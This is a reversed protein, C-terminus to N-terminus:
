QLHHHRQRLRCGLVSSPQNVRQSGVGPPRQGHRRKGGQEAGDEDKHVLLDSSDDDVALLVLELDSRRTHRVPPTHGQLQTYRKIRGTADFAM